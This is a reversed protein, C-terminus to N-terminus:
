SKKRKVAAFTMHDRSTNKGLIMYDPDKDYHTPETFGQEWAEENSLVDSIIVTCFRPTYIQDGKKM